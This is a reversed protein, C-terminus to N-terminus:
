GQGQLDSGPSSCTQLWSSLEGDWCAVAMSGPLFKGFSGLSRRFLFLAGAPHEGADQVAEQQGGRSRPQRTPPSAEPPLPLEPSVSVQAGPLGSWPACELGGWLCASAQGKNQPERGVEPLAWWLGSSSGPLPKGSKWPVPFCLAHPRLCGLM